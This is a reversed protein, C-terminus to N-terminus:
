GCTREDAGLADKRHAAASLLFILLLYPMSLSERRVEAKADRGTVDM